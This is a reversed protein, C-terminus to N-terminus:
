SARNAIRDKLKVARPEKDDLNLVMDCVNAAELYRGSQFYANALPMLISKQSNVNAADKTGSIRLADAAKIFTVIAKEINYYSNKYPKFQYLMAEEAYVRFMDPYTKPIKSLLSYSKDYNGRNREFRAYGTQLAVYNAKYREVNEESADIREKVYNCWKEYVECQYRNLERVKEMYNIDHRNRMGGCTLISKVEDEYCALLATVGNYPNDTETIKKFYARAKEFEGKKKAIRGLLLCAPIDNPNIDALIHNYVAEAFREMNTKVYAEGNKYVSHSCDTLLKTLCIYNSENVYNVLEPIPEEVCHISIKMYRPWTYANRLQEESFCDNIMSFSEAIIKRCQTESFMGESHMRAMEWLDDIEKSIIETPSSETASESNKIILSIIGCLLGNTIKEIYTRKIFTKMQYGKYKDYHDAYPIRPSEGFRQNGCSILIYHINGSGMHTPTITTLTNKAVSEASM